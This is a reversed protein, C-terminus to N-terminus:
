RAVNFGTCSIGEYTGAGDEVRYFVVTWDGRNAALPVAGPFDDPYTLEVYDGPDRGGYLDVPASLFGTPGGDASPQASPPRVAVRVPYPAPRAGGGAKGAKGDANAANAAPKPRM